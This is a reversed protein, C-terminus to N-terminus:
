KPPSSLGDRRPVGVGELRSVGESRGDDRGVCLAIKPSFVGGDAVMIASCVMFMGGCIMSGGKFLAVFVGGLDECAPGCFRSDMEVWSRLMM